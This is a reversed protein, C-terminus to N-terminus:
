QLRFVALALASGGMDGHMGFMSKAPKLNTGGTDHTIGKGVLTIKKKASDPKYHLRVIGADHAPSGQAVAVFAGAKMDVLQDYDIFKFEVGLENALNEADKVYNEPNLDNGARMAYDRVLNTSEAQQASKRVLGELQDPNNGLVTWQM